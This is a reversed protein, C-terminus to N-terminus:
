SIYNDEEIQHRTAVHVQNDKANNWKDELKGKMEERYAPYHKKVRDVEKIFELYLEPDLQHACNIAYTKISLANSMAIRLVDGTDYFTSVTIGALNLKVMKGKKTVSTRHGELGVELYRSNGFKPEARNPTFNIGIKQLDISIRADFKKM